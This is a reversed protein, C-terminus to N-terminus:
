DCLSGKRLDNVMKRASEVDDFEGITEWKGYYKKQIQYCGNDHMVRYESMRQVEKSRKDIKDLETQLIKAADRNDLVKGVDDCHYRTGLELLEVGLCVLEQACRDIAFGRKYKAVEKLLEERPLSSFFDVKSPVLVSPDTMNDKVWVNGVFCTDKTKKTRFQKVYETDISMPLLITHGSYIVSDRTYQSSCVLVLDEYNKLWDYHWPTSNDHLFVIMGDHMGSFDRGVTNWDRWTKVRPIINDVIEKSYYYCGNFKGNGIKKRLKVYEPHNHDIIM